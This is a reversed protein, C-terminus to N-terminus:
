HMLPKGQLNRGLIGYHKCIWRSTVDANRLNFGLANYLFPSKHKPASQVISRYM